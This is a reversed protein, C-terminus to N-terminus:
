IFFMTYAGKLKVKAGKSLNYKFNQLAPSNPKREIKPNIRMVGGGM